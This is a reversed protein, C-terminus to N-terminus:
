VACSRIQHNLLVFCFVTVCSQCVRGIIIFKKVFPPGLTWVHAEWVYVIIILSIQVHTVCPLCLLPFCVKVAQQRVTRSEKLYVNPGLNLSELIVGLYRTSSCFMDHCESWTRACLKFASRATITMQAPSGMNSNNQWSTYFCIRLCGYFLYPTMSVLICKSLISSGSIM